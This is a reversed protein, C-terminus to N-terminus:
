SPLTDANRQCRMWDSVRVTEPPKFRVNRRIRLDKNRSIDIHRFVEAIPTLLFLSKVLRSSQQNM